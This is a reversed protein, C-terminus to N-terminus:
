FGSNQRVSSGNKEMFLLPIPSFPFFTYYGKLVILGGTTSRKTEICGAFDADSYLFVQIEDATNGVWIELNYDKTGNMYEM